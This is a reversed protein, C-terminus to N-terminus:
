RRKKKKKDNGSSIILLAVIIILVIGIPYFFQSIIAKIVDENHAGLEMARKKCAYLGFVYSAILLIVCIIFWTLMGEESLISIFYVSLFIFACQLVLPFGVIAPEGYKNEFEKNYNYAVAFSIIIVIVAVIYLAEM